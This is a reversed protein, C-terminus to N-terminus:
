RATEDAVERGHLREVVHFAMFPASEDSRRSEVGPALRTRSFVEFPGALDLVEVEESAFIGVTWRDM